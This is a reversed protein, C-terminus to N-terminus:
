ADAAVLFAIVNDRYHGTSRDFSGGCTVLRLTAGAEAGYVLDTPFEDKPFRSVERTVFRQPGTTTDVVVVAGIPLEALRFFVGPGTRRSDVHGMIVAPGQEGPRPGGTFWGAIGADAPVDVTGDPLVGTAVLPSAVGIDPITISLPDGVVAAAAPAGSRVVPVVPAVTTTTAPTTTTTTIGATDVTRPLTTAPRSRATPPAPTSAPTTAPTTRPTASPTPAARPPGSEGAGCGALGLAVGTILVAAM